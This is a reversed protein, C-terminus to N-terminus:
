LWRLAFLAADESRKFVFQEYDSHWYRGRFNDWCWREAETMNRVSIMYQHPWYKRNYVKSSFRMRQSFISGSSSTMPQVGIIQQAVVQPMVQRILPILIKPNTMAM